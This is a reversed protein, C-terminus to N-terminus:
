GPLELSRLRFQVVFEQDKGACVTSSCNGQIKLPVAAVGSALAVAREDCEARTATTQRFFAAIDEDVCYETM